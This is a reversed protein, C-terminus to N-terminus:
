DNSNAGPGSYVTHSKRGHDGRNGQNGGNDGGQHGEFNGGEDGGPGGGPSKALDAVLKAVNPTGWGSALDYGPKADFGVPSFFANSGKLIDHFDLSTRKDRALRYLNDNAFGIPGRGQAARQENVLAFIGAWSPSGLSTGGVLQPGGGAFVTVGGNVAANYSVDPITRMRSDTLGRQWSPAKFIVSPAGGSAGIPQGSPAVENWVQEGGYGFNQFLGDPYPDGMTGGVATVLPDSAPFGAVPTNGGTMPTWTAGVDGTSAVLTERLLTALVFVGHMDKIFSGATSDTEFDGFSMSVASGPYRPLVKAAALVLDSNDDTAAAAVVIKAGPAAAHAYEVDLSTELAWFQTEGSGTAGSGPVNIVKLAPPDPLGYYGDFIQLDSELTPSGYPTVIVITQGTGDLNSPFNYAKGLEYPGYCTPRRPPGFLCPQSIAAPATVSAAGAGPGSDAAAVATWCLCAGAILPATRALVKKM